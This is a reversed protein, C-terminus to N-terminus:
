LYFSIYLEGSYIVLGLTSAIVTFGIIESVIIAERSMKDVSSNKPKNRVKKPLNEVSNTASTTQRRVFNPNM